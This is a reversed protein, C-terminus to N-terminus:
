IYVNKAIVLAHWNFRLYNIRRDFYQCKKKLVHRKKEYMAINQFIPLPPFIIIRSIAIISHHIIISSPYIPPFHLIFVSHLNKKEEIWRFYINELYVLFGQFASFYKFDIPLVTWPRIDIDNIRVSLPSHKFRLVIKIGGSNTVM